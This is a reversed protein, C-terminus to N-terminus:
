VGLSFIPDLAIVGIKFLLELRDESDPEEEDLLFVTNLNPQSSDLKDFLIANTIAVRFKTIDQESHELALGNALQGIVKIVYVGCNYSSTQKPCVACTDRWGLGVLNLPADRKDAEDCLWRRFMSCYTEADPQRNMSDYYSITRGIM